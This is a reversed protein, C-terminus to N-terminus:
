CSEEQHKLGARRRELASSFLAAFVGVIGGFFIAVVIIMTSKPKDPRLPLSPSRQYRFTTFSVKESYDLLENLLSIQTNIRHYEQTYQRNERNSTEDALTKVSDKKTKLEIIKAEIKSRLDELVSQHTVKSIFNIFDTLTQHSIEPDNFSFSIDTYTNNKSSNNLIQRTPLVTVANTLTDLAQQQSKGQQRLRAFIDSQLFFEIHKDTAVVSDYFYNFIKKTIQEKRGINNIQEVNLNLNIAILQNLKLQQQESTTREGLIAYYKNHMFLYNKIGTNTPLTVEARSVWLKEVSITYIAALLGFFIVFSVLWLKKRWISLSLDLLDIEDAATSLNINRETM